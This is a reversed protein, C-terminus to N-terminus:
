YPYYYCCGCCCYYHNNDNDNHISKKKLRIWQKKQPAVILTFYKQKNKTIEAIYLM